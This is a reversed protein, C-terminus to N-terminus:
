DTSDRKKKKVLHYHSTTTNKRRFIGLESVINAIEGLPIRFTPGFFPSFGKNHSGNEDIFYSQRSKLDYGTPKEKPVQQKIDNSLEEMKKRELEKSDIIDVQMLEQIEPELLIYRGNEKETIFQKQFAIHYVLLSDNETIETQFFGSTNSRVTKGTRVNIISVDPVPISDLTLIIGSVLIQTPNQAVVQLTLFISLLFYLRRM